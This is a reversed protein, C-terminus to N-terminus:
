GQSDMFFFYAIAGVILVAIWQILLLGTDVTTTIYPPKFIWSYGMGGVQGRYGIQHFPPYLLMALVVIAALILVARQKKNMHLRKQLPKTPTKLEETLSLDGGCSVCVARHSANKSGCARCTVLEDAM